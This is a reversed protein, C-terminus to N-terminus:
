DKDLLIKVYILFKFFTVIELITFPLELVSVHELM